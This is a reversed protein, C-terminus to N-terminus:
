GNVAKRVEGRIKSKNRNDVENQAESKLEFCFDSRTDQRETRYFIVIEDKESSKRATIETIFGSRVEYGESLGSLYPFYINDGINFFTEIKM